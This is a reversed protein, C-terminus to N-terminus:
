HHQSETGLFAEHKWSDFSIISGSVRSEEAAFAMFHSDMATALSLEATTSLEGREIAGIFAEMLGEDGGAHGRHDGLSAADPIVQLEFTRHALPGKTTTEKVHERLDDPLETSPSFLEVIIQGNDMHGSIQGASGTITVHRTNEGTFATATLQATAGSAFTMTTMQHDVVDNDSQYVCRGYDSIGLARMRGAVSTDETLLTIPMGHVSELADLYYRPAYYPCNDAVPCGDICFEPAGQPKNEIRFHQLSGHSVIQVPAAGMLWRILDLDHCTKALVMPSSTTANRWNGRVYSHAFHWFGINERIELTILEGIIGRKIVSHIIKWFNTFRLVHAVALPVSFEHQATMLRQLEPLTPAAPKELLVPVGRAMFAIAPDVHEGDPLTIIVADLALEDLHDLILDWSDFHKVHQAPALNERRSAVPDAVAVIRVRQPNNKIWSGYTENGRSGAGCIAVRLPRSM